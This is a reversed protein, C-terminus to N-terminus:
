KKSRRSRIILVPVTAHRMVKEAVSGFLLHKFGAQGHTAIVILDVRKKKAVGTIEHAPSGPVILSPVRVGKPIRKKKVDDMSRAASKELASQFRGADFSGPLEPGSLSPMPPVVHLLVLEARYAAALDLATELAKYSPNSFDTPWLIKKFKKM